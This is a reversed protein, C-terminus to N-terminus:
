PFPADERIPFTTQEGYVSGTSTFLLNKTGAQRAAELVNWTGITNVELDRRPHELGRRVDANAAFHAVWDFSGALAASLGAFDTIDGRVVTFNPNARAQELFLEQGTSFNDFCTVRHGRALMADCFNSGLFGAGGTVFFNM